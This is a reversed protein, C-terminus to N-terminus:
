TAEWRTTKTVHWGGCALCEYVRLPHGCRRTLYLAYAVAQAEDVCRRKGCGDHKPPMNWSRPSPGVLKSLRRPTPHLKDPNM